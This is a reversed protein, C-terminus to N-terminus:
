NEKEGEDQSETLTTATYEGEEWLKGLTKGSRVQDLTKQVIRWIDRQVEQISQAASIIHWPVRGGQCRDM